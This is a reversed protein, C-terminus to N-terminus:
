FDEAHFFVSTDNNILCIGDDKLEYNLKLYAGDTEWKSSPFADFYDPDYEVTIQTEDLSKVFGEIGPNGAENDYISLYLGDDDIISLHWWGGIYDDSADVEVAQYEGIINSQCDSDIETNGSGCGNLLIIFSCLILLGFKKKM